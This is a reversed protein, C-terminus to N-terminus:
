RLQQRFKEYNRSDDVIRYQYSNITFCNRLNPLTALNHFASTFITQLDGLKKQIEVFLTEHTHTRDKLKQLAEKLGSVIENVGHVSIFKAYGQDAQKLQEEPSILTNEISTLEEKTPLLLISAQLYVLDEKM